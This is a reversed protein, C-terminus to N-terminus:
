NGVMESLLPLGAMPDFRKANCYAIAVGVPTPSLGTQMSDWWSRLRELNPLNESIYRGMAGIAEANTMDVRADHLIRLLEGMEVPGARQVVRNVFEQSNGANIRYHDDLFPHPVLEDALGPLVSDLRRRIDEADDRSVGKSVYGPLAQTLPMHWRSLPQNPYYRICDLIDLRQLWGDRTGDPLEQGHFIKSVLEDILKLGLEPDPRAPFLLAVFWIGTLGSLALTDIKDIVDVAQSVVMHVPKVSENAREVLLKSLLEHDSDESTSAAQLQSRRLLVQFGPDAFAQLGNKATLEAILKDELSAIRREAEERAEDTLERVVLYAQKRSIEVAREETVGQIVYVNEAQIQQSGDGAEQRQGKM